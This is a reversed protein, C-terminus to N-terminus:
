VHARGIKKGSGSGDPAGTGVSKIGAELIHCVQQFTAPTAAMDLAGGLESLYARNSKVAIGIQEEITEIKRTDELNGGVGRWITTAAVATGPTTERGLQIKQAWKQGM